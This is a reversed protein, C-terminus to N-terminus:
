KKAVEKVGYNDELWVPNVKSPKKVYGEYHHASSTRVESNSLRYPSMRKGM